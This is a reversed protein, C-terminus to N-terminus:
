LVKLQEVPTNANLEIYKFMNQVIGAPFYYINNCPTIKLISNKEDIKVVSALFEKKAVSFIIYGSRSQIELINFRNANVSALTLYFLRDSNFKFYKYCDSFDVPQPKVPSPKAVSPAPLTQVADATGCACGVSLFCLVFLTFFLKSKGKEM